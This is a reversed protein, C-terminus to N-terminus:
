SAHRFAKALLAALAALPALWLPAVSDDSTKPTGVQPKAAAQAAPQEPKQEPAPTVDPKQEAQKTGPKPSFSAAAASVSETAATVTASDPTTGALSVEFDGALDLTAQAQAIAAALADREAQTVWEDAPDVDSGDASVRAGDLKARAAAVAQRLAALEENSALDREQYFAKIPPNDVCCNTQKEALAATVVTWDSWQGDAELSYSEGENVKAVFDGSKLVPRESYACKSSKGATQYYKEAGDIQAKLTVVVSYRQGARMALQEDDGLMLRHYGGYEYDVTKSLALTGDTPSEADDALLYVEYTAQTNLKATECSLARLVRGSDAGVEFVNASSVKQDSARVLTTQNAMYNYQDAEFTEGATASNVDYDYAAPTVITHDYYSLWFYGTANGDADKIGFNGQHPFSNTSAGYSNKVLFAGPKEPQEGDKFNSVEYTDDYGVITVAHAAGDNDSNNYYAGTNENYFQSENYGVAAAVGRGANLQEKIAALAEDSTGAYRGDVDLIRVDPLLYSQELTYVSQGYLTSELGWGPDGLGFGQIAYSTGIEYRYGSAEWEPKKAEIQELTLYYTSPFEYGPVAESAGKDYVDCQILGKDNRYPATSEMVPGVGASFLTSAATQYGGITLPLSSSAGESPVFGEGAQDAGAYAQTAASYAFVTLYRESLDLGTKAYTTGLESLISTESAAIAAHAWCTNADGQNKVPTVVGRDRLDLESPFTKTAAATTGESNYASYFSNNLTSTLATSWGDIASQDSALAAAPAAFLLGATVACLAARKLPAIPNRKM